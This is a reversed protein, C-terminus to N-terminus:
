KKKHDQEYKELKAQEEALLNEIRRREALDSTIKLLAIYHEINQRLVFREM